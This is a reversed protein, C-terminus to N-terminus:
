KNWWQPFSDDFTSINSAEKCYMKEQVEKM